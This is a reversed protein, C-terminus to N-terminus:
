AYVVEIATIKVQGNTKTGSNGVGFTISNANVEVVDDSSITTGNLTLIGTNSINYTIKVSKITKGEVAKIVISPNETQYIRWEYGSTYYKGTNTTGSATVTINSDMNITTYKVSNSWGNAAAYDAINTSVTEPEAEEGGGEDGGEEPKPSVNVTITFDKTAEAEGVYLTARITVTFTAAENAITDPLTVTLTNNEIAAEIGTVDGVIDWTYSDSLSLTDSTTEDVVLAITDQELTLAAIQAAAQDADSLEGMTLTISKVRVQNSGKVDLKLYTYSFDASVTYDEYSTSTISVDEILTWTSGDISGYVSLTDVRNGANFSFKTIAKASKIIAYGNYTSSSYIRLESTFHCNTTTVTVYEDLVHAENDAYQTGAPYDSFTYTNTITTVEEGGGQIIEVTITYESSEASEEGLRFTATIEFTFPETANTVTLTDGEITVNELDNVESWTIAVDNYTKPKVPLTLSGSTEGEAISITADEFTLAAKEANVKEAATPEAPNVTISNIRVQAGLSSITFSNTASDLTVKVVQDNTTVTVGDATPISSSLATAYDDTNCDFEIAKIGLGEITVTSNKYLRVPNSYDAVNTTSAGKDNTFTIGNQSWVQKDDDCSVRNTTDAFSLTANSLAKKVEISFDKTANATGCTLTARVELMGEMLPDVVNITNDVISAIENGNTIEWAISVNNIASPLATNETITTPISLTDKASDVVTDVIHTLTYTPTEEQLARAAVQALSRAQPAIQDATYKITSEDDNDYYYGVATLERDWLLVNLDKNDQGVVVGTYEWLTTDNGEVKWNTAEINIASTTNINLTQDDPILDTPIVLTGFKRNLEKGEEIVDNSVFTTFRIGVPFQKRVSAGEDMTFVDTYTIPEEAVATATSLNAIGVSLSSLAIAAFGVCLLKRLKKM